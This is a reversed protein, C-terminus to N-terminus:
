GELLNHCQAALFNPSIQKVREQIFTVDSASLEIEDAGWIQMALNGARLHDDPTQGEVSAQVLAGAVAKGLTAEEGEEGKIPNKDLGILTQTMDIKM